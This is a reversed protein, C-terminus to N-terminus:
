TVISIDKYITKTDKCLLEFM